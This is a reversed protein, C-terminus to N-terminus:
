IVIKKEVASILEGNKAAKKDFFNFVFSKSAKISVIELKSFEKQSDRLFRTGPKM